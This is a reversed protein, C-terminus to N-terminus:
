DSTGSMQVQLTRVASELFQAQALLGAYQAPSLKDREALQASLQHWASLLEQLQDWRAAKGDGEPLASWTLLAASLASELGALGALVPPAELPYSTSRWAPVDKEDTLSFVVKSRESSVRYPADVALPKDGLRLRVANFFGDVVRRGDVRTNLNQAAGAPPTGLATVEFHATNQGLWLNGLDATVVRYPPGSFLLTGLRDMEGFSRAVASWSSLEGTRAVHRGVNILWSDGPKPGIGRSFPLAIEASWNDANRTTVAVWKFDQSVDDGLSDSQTGAANVALRATEGARRQGVTDIYMEVSDDSGIPGDRQGVEARFQGSPDYCILGLYLNAADYCVYVQTRLRPLKDGGLDIFDSLAGARAWERSEVRGDLNPASTVAPASVVPGDAPVALVGGLPLVFLALILVLRPYM